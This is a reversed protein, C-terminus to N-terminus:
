HSRVYVTAVADAGRLMLGHQDVDIALGAFPADLVYMRYRGAELWVGLRLDGQGPTQLMVEDGLVRLVVRGALPHDYAGAWALVDAGSSRIGLAIKPTPVLNRIASVSVHPGGLARALLEDRMVAGVRAGRQVDTLVVLGLGKSPFMSLMSGFGLTSGTHQVSQVGRLSGVMAGLAYSWRSDVSVGPTWLTNVHLPPMSPAGPVPLGLEFRLLRAMDPATSAVGAAPMISAVFSEKSIPMAHVSGSMDPAHPHASSSWADITWDTRTASMRLPQLLTAHMWASYALAAPKDPYVSGSFEYAVSASLANNYSYLQGEPAIPQTDYAYLQLKDSPPPAGMLLPMDHRSHGSCACFGLRQSPTWLGQNHLDIAAASLVKSLSGVLYTPFREAIPADTGVTECHDREGSRVVCYSVSGAGAARGARVALRRLATWDEDSLRRRPRSSVDSEALGWARMRRLLSVSARDAEGWESASARVLLVVARDGHLRVVARERYGYADQMYHRTVEADYPAFDEAEQVQYPGQGRGPWAEDWARRFADAVNAAPVVLLRAVFERESTRLECVGEERSFFWGTPVAIDVGDEVACHASDRSKLPELNPLPQSVAAEASPAFGLM